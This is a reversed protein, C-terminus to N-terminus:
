PIIVRLFVKDTNSPQSYSMTTGNGNLAAGINGWSELDTSRQVQYSQGAVTPWSIILNGDDLGFSSPALEPDESPITWKKITLPMGDPMPTPTYILFSRSSSPPQLVAAEMGNTNELSGVQEETVTIGQLSVTSFRPVGPGVIARYVLAEKNLFIIRPAGGGSIGRWVLEGDQNLVAVVYLTSPVPGFQYQVSFVMACMGDKSLVPTGEEFGGSLTAGPWIIAADVEYEWDEQPQTAPCDSGLVISIFLAFGAFTKM